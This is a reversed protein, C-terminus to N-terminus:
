MEGGLPDVDDGSFLSSKKEAMGGTQGTGEAGNVTENTIECLETAVCGRLPVHGPRDGENGDGPSMHSVHPRTGSKQGTGQIDNSDNNNEDPSMPSLDNPPTGRLFIEIIKLVRPRNFIYAM